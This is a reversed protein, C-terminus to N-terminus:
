FKLYAISLAKIKWCHAISAGQMSKPLNQIFRQASYRALKSTINVRLYMFFQDQQIRRTHNDSINNFASMITEDFLDGKEVVGM